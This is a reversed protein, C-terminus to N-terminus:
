TIVATSKRAIVSVSIVQRMSTPLEGNILEHLRKGAHLGMEQKAIKVTTLPPNTYNAMEIDDFGTVSIDDPISYGLEILAKMAGIALSDNAACISTPKINNNKMLELVAQYGDDIKFSPSCIKVLNEDVSLNNGELVAKYGHFREKLSFHNLPGGLFAIKEHGLKILYDVMDKAGNYNDNLVCNLNNDDPNNDVLIIPIEKDSFYSILRHDIDYGIIIFGKIRQKNILEDMSDKDKNYDNVISQFFLQYNYNQFYKQIGGLVKTYFPHEYENFPDEFSFIIGITNNEDEKADDNNSNKSYNRPKYNFKKAIEIVKQKTDDSVYATNNFVRSVTATSVNAKDAIDKITVKM